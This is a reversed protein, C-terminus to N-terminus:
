VGAMIWSSIQGCTSGAPSLLSSLVSRRLARHPRIIANVLQDYGMELQKFIGPDEPPEEAAKKRAKVQLTPSTSPSNGM